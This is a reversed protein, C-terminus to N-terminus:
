RVVIQYFNLEADETDKDGGTQSVDFGAIDWADFHVYAPILSVGCDAGATLMQLGDAHGSYIHSSGNMFKIRAKTAQTDETGCKCNFYVIRGTQVEVPFNGKYLFNQVNIAVASWTEDVFIPTAPVVNTQSTFCLKTIVISTNLPVGRITMLSSTLSYVLGYQWLSITTWIVSGDTTTGGETTNWTAPETGSTAGGATTVQYAYGNSTTPIVIDYLSPTGSSWDVYDQQWKIGMGATVQATIDSVTITSTSLPTATYLSSDVRSWDGGIEEWKSPTTIPSESPTTGLICEYIKLNLSAVEGVEYAITNDYITKSFTDTMDVVNDQMVTGTVSKTINQYIEAILQTRLVGTGLRSM